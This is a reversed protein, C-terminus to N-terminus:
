GGGVIAILMMMSGGLLGVGGREEGMRLRSKLRRGARRCLCLWMEGLAESLLLAVTRGGEM